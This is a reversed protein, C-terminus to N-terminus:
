SVDSPASPQMCAACPSASQTVDRTTENPLAPPGCSPFHRHSVFESQLVSVLM